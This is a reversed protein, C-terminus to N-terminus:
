QFAFLFNSLLWFSMTRGDRELDVGATERERETEM